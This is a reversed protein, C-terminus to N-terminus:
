KVHRIITVSTQVPIVESFSLSLGISPAPNGGSRTSTRSIEIRFDFNGRRFVITPFKVFVEDGSLQLWAQLNAGKAM